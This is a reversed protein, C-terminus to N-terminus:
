TRCQADFSTCSRALISIRLFQPKQYKKALRTSLRYSCQKGERLAELVRYALNGVCFNM